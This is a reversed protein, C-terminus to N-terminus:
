RDVKVEVTEGSVGPFERFLANAVTAANANAQALPSDPDVAFEARGEWIPEGSSRDRITVGLQTLMEDGSGGGGLNFGLGVGIGSRYGGTGGGVGVSVPGRRQGRGIIQRDLRVEAVQGAAGLAVERYGLRRLEEAVAAKYLSLELGGTAPRNLGDDDWGFEPGTGPVDNGFAPASEIHITGNGLQALRAPEHFRTVEVPGPATACAALSTAAATALVLKTLKKM